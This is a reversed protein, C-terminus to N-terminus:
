EVDDAVVAEVDKDLLAKKAKTADKTAKSRATKLAAKEMIEEPSLEKKVTTTAKKTKTIVPSGDTDDNSEDGGVLAKLAKTKAKTENSRSTKLAAKEIIEAPTLNTNKKVGMSKKVIKKTSDTM